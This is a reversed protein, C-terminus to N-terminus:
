QNILAKNKNYENLAVERETVAELESEFRGVFINKSNRYLYSAWKGRNPDFFVGPVNNKRKNLNNDFAHLTNHSYTCWELNAFHDNYKQGDIHNVVEHNNPNPVFLKAVLRSIKLCKIKGLKSLVIMRYECPSPKRKKGKYISKRGSSNTIVRDLSKVNGYNSVQYYGEFDPIDKWVESLSM